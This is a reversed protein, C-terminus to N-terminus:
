REGGGGGGCAASLHIETVKLVQIVPLQNDELDDSEAEIEGDLLRRTLHVTWNQDPHKRIVAGQSSLYLQERGTSCSHQQCRSAPIRRKSSRVELIHSGNLRVTHDQCGPTQGYTLHTKHEDTHASADFTGLGSSQM